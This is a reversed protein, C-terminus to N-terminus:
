VQFEDFHTHPTVNSSNSLIGDYIWQVVAVRYVTDLSCVFPISRCALRGKLLEFIYHNDDYRSRIM